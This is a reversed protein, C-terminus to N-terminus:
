FSALPAEGNIPKFLDTSALTVGDWSLIEKCGCFGIFCGCLDVNGNLTTLELKGSLNYM